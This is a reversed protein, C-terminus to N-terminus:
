KWNLYLNLRELRNEYSYNRAIHKSASYLNELKEEYTDTLSKRSLSLGPHNSHIIPFDINKTIFNEWSAKPAILISMGFPCEVYKRVFARYRTPTSCIYKSFLIIKRYNLNLDRKLNQIKNIKSLEQSANFELLHNKYSILLSLSNRYLLKSEECMLPKLKNFIAIREPALSPLASILYQKNLISPNADYSADICHRLEIYRNKNTAYDIIKSYSKIPEMASCFRLHPGWFSLNKINLIQNMLGIDNKHIRWYDFAGMYIIFQKALDFSNIKELIWKKFKELNLVAKNFDLEYLHTERFNGSSFQSDLFLMWTDLIIIEYNFYLDKFRESQIEIDVKFIDGHFTSSSILSKSFLDVEPFLFEASTTLFCTKM